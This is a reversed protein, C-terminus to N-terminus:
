KILLMKKTETFGESVMRYFYVGSTLGSGDFKVEYTGASLKDNVLTLVERGQIDYVVLKVNGANCMTFQVNCMPNFPNPYNQGLSYSSPVETSVNEIGTLLTDGYTVGNIKCGVLYVTNGTIEWLDVRTIGFYKSYQRTVIVLGDELFAKQKSPIGLISLSLTDVCLSRLNTGCKKLSDSKRSGLSDIYKENILYNCNYNNAIGTVVGTVGDIRYWNGYNWFGPLPNNFYYFRKGSVVTDKTIRVKQRSYFPPYISSSEYVYINGV